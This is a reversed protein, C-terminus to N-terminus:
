LCAGEGAWVTSASSSAGHSCTGLPCVTLIHGLRVGSVSGRLRLQYWFEGIEVSSFVLSAMSTGSFRPTFTASCTVPEGPIAALRDPATVDAARQGEVYVQFIQQEGTPNTVALDVSASEWCACTLEVTGLAPGREVELQM